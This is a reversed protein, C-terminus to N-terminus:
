PQGPLKFDNPLGYKQLLRRLEQREIKVQESRDREATRALVGNQITWAKIRREVDVLGWRPDGAPTHGVVTQLFQRRGEPTACYKEFFEGVGLRNGFGFCQCLGHHLPESFRDREFDSEVLRAFLNAVLSKQEVPWGCASADVFDDPAFPAVFPRRSRRPGPPTLHKAAVEPSWIQAVLDYLRPAFRRRVGECGIALFDPILHRDERPPSTVLRLPVQVTQGPNLPEHARQRLVEYVEGDQSVLLHCHLNGEEAKLVYSAVKFLKEM